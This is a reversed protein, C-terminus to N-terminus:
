QRDFGIRLEVKGDLKLGHRADQREAEVPGGALVAPAGEIGGGQLLLNGDVVLDPLELRPCRLELVAVGCFDELHRRRIAGLDRSCPYRTVPSAPTACGAM